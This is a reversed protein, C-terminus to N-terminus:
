ARRSPHHPVDASQPPKMKASEACQENSRLHADEAIKLTSKNRSAAVPHNCIKCTSKIVRNKGDVVRREFEKAM